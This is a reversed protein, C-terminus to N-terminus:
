LISDNYFFIVQKSIWTKGAVYFKNVAIDMLDNMHEKAPLLHQFSPQLIITENILNSTLKIM